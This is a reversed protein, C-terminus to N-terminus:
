YTLSIYVNFHMYKYTWQVDYTDRLPLFQLFVYLFPLCVLWQSSRLEDKIGVCRKVGASDIYKRTTQGVCTRQQERSMYGARDCISQVLEMDNSWIRHPKPTRGAFRGM